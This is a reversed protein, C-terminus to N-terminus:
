VIIENNPKTFINLGILVVSIIFIILQLYVLKTLVSSTYTLSVQGTGREIPLIMLGNEDAALRVLKKNITVKWNHHYNQSIMLTQNTETLYKFKFSNFNLKLDKIQANGTSYILGKSLIDSYEVSKQFKETSSFIFPNYGDVGTTRAYTNLNVWLGVTPTITKNELQSLPTNATQNTLTENAQEKLYDKIDTTPINYYMHIPGNLQIATFLEIFVIFAMYTQIKKYHVLRLSYLLGLFLCSLILQIFAHSYNNLPSRERLGHWHKIYESYESLDSKYLLYSLVLPVIMLFLIVRTSLKLNFASIKLSNVAYSSCVIIGFISYLGFLYPHRFLSIGPLFQFALRHVPTHNGLMLLLSIVISTVLIYKRITNKEKILYYLFLLLFPIGVYVNAMSVDIGSFGVKASIVYPTIFSQFCQWNFNSVFNQPDYVLPTARSFYSISDGISYLYPGSLISTTIICIGILKLTFLFTKLRNSSQFIFYLALLAYVYVLVISFATYAGMLHLSTVLSLVVAYIYNRNKFSLLLFLLCWPLWAAGTTFGIMHSTGSIFGSLSYVMAGLFAVIPKLRLQKIFFYMGIGALLIHFVLELNMSYQTYGKALGFLWTIPYWVAGQPNAHMPYGFNQYPDWLPLHGNRWWHIATYRYPFFASLNDWKTPFINFVLQFYSIITTLFLLSCYKIDERKM